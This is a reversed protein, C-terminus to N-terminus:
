NSNGEFASWSFKIDDEALKNLRITFGEESRRVVAFDYNASLIETELAQSDIVMSANVIPIFDYPKDFVVNVIDKGQKIVVEGATDRGFSIHDKFVVEGLFTSSSNVILDQVTMNDLVTVIGEIM